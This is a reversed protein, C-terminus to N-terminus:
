PFEVSASRAASMLVALTRLEQQGDETRRRYEEAAAKGFAVVIPRLIRNRQQREALERLRTEYQADLTGNLSTSQTPMDPTRLADDIARSLAQSPAQGAVMAAAADLLSLMARHYASGRWRPSTRDDWERFEPSDEGLTRGVMMRAPVGYSSDTALLLATTPWQQRRWILRSVELAKRTQERYSDTTFAQGDAPSLERAVLAKTADLQRRAAREADALDDDDESPVVPAGRRPLLRSLASKARSEHTAREISEPGVVAVIYRSAVMLFAQVRQEDSQAREYAQRDESSGATAVFRTRHAMAVREDEAEELTPPRQSARAKRANDIEGMMAASDLSRSNITLSVSPTKRVDVTLPLYSGTALIMYTGCPLSTLAFSGSSDTTVQRTLSRFTSSRVITVAIGRAPAGQETKATGTLSCEQAYVPAATSLVSVAMALRLSMTFTM